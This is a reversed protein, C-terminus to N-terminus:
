KKPRVNQGPQTLDYPGDFGMPWYIIALPPWFISSIRFTSRLTGEEVVENNKELRYPIGTTKGWSFPHTKYRKLIEKDKLQDNNVFLKTGEPIKFSAATSCATLACLVALLTFLIIKKMYIEKELIQVIFCLIM